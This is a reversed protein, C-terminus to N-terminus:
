PRPVRVERKLKTRLPHSLSYLMRVDLLALLLGLLLDLTLAIGLQQDMGLILVLLLM